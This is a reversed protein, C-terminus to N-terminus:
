TILGFMGVQEAGAEGAFSERDKTRYPDVAAHELLEHVISEGGALM